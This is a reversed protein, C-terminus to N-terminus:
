SVDSFTSCHEIKMTRMWNKLAMEGMLDMCFIVQTLRCKMETEHHRGKWPPLPGTPESKGEAEEWRMLVSLVERIESSARMVEKKGLETDESRYIELSARPLTVEEGQLINCLICELMMQSWTKGLLGLRPPPSSSSWQMTLSQKTCQM